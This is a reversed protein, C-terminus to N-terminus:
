FGVVIIGGSGAIVNPNAAAVAYRRCSMGHSWEHTTRDTFSGPHQKDEIFRFNRQERICHLSDKTWHQYFQNVRQVGFDVSGKGKMTEQMNLGFRRLEEISKAEDPDAYVPERKVGCLIMKRAIEDNTLGTDDYFIEQSYLKDGIIVNKVLVTPDVLFGFDLGYFYNGQPLVDVQQFNPYVLGEVKGILGLGHVRYYNPDKDKYSEITQIVGQSVIEPTDRYTLGSIFVNEKQEAMKEDHFWFEFYPNWDGITFRATRLDGERFVARSLNNMENCFWVDRRPGAFREPHDGSVFELQCGSKPFTYIMDTRNWQAQILEDGMIHLFDRIAGGKLHPMSESTVTALLPQKMSELTLKLFQMTSFTNHTVTFDELLFLHDGDLEFGYYDGYGVPQVEISSAYRRPLEFSKAKKRELKVPIDGVTNGVFEVRYSDTEYVSGDVRKMRAKYCNFTAYFGLSRVLLLIDEALEKRTQTIVLSQRSKYGDSDILGALLELRVQRSNNLYEKPIRKENLIGYHRLASWLWNTREGQKSLRHGNPDSNMKVYRLGSRVAFWKLYEIVPADANTISATGSTGDGLWLGLFYPEIKVAKKKLEVGALKWGKHRRKWKGSKSLYDSLSINVVERTHDNRVYQRRQRTNGSPNPVSKRIERWNERLSLIHNSSVVYDIGRKQKVLYLDDEGRYLKIVKRPKGDIGMLSDGVKVDEVAKLTLDAMVVRTGRGLCKSTATGGEVFFRRKGKLWADMLLYFVKTCVMTKETAVM